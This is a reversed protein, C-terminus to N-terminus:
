YSFASTHSANHSKIFCNPHPVTRQVILKTDNHVSTQNWSKKWYMWSKDNVSGGGGNSILQYEQHMTIYAGMKRITIQLCGSNGTMIIQPRIYMEFKIFTLKWDTHLIMFPQVGRQARPCGPFLLVMDKVSLANKVVSIGTHSCITTFHIHACCHFIVSHLM